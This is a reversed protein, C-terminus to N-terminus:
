LEKWRLSFDVHGPTDVLQYVINNNTTLAQDSFITIGRQKEIDHYDLVTNKNDVRGAEKISNTHFLIQELITTKGADVHAAIGITRYM